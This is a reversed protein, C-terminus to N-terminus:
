WVNIMCVMRCVIGAVFAMATNHGASGELKACRTRVALLRVRMAARRPMMLRRSAGIVFASPSQASEILDKKDVSSQRNQSPPQTRTIFCKNVCTAHCDNKQKCVRLTQIKIQYSYNSSTRPIRCHPRSLRPLRDLVRFIMVAFCSTGRAM